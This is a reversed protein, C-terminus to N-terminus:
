ADAPTAKRARWESCHAPVLRLHPAEKTLAHLHALTRRYQETDGLWGTVFAPPSLGERVARSSWSADAILFVPGQADHFLLGYHGAAHGPLEIALVSGDGFLDHGIGFRALPGDLARAPLDEFFALRAQAAEDVLAPLLGKRLAGIRGRANQDAWAARALAIRANPFDALGGVHDGHLHSLVVWRIAAPDVGERELQAALSAGPALHVPTVTRYLCEPFRATARFFHRSYGTDFLVPGHQPHDLRAVLAPFECARWSGDSVTALEPHTCYGAEYLRWELPLM